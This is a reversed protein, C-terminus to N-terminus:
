SNGLLEIEFNLFRLAPSYEERVSCPLRVRLTGRLISPAFGGIANRNIVQLSRM